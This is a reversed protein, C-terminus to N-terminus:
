SRFQASQLLKTKFNKRLKQEPFGLGGYIFNKTEIQGFLIIEVKRLSVSTQQVSFSLSSKKEM